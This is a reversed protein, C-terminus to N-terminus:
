AKMGVLLCHGISSAPARACRTPVITRVQAVHHKMGHVRLAAELLQPLREKIDKLAPEKAKGTSGVAGGSDILVICGILMPSRAVM